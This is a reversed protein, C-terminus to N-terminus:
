KDTLKSSLSQNLILPHVLMCFYWWWMFDIKKLFLLFLALFSGESSLLGQSLKIYAFAYLTGHLIYIKNSMLQFHDITACLPKLSCVM